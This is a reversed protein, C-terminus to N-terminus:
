LAVGYESKVSQDYTMREGVSETLFLLHLVHHMSVTSLYLAQGGIIPYHLLRCAM